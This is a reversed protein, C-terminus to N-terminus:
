EENIVLINQNELKTSIFKKICPCSVPHEPGIREWAAKKLDQKITPHSSSMESIITNVRQRAATILKELTTWMAQPQSLDVVIFM